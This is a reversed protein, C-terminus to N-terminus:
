RTGRTLESWRKLLRAAAGSDVASAARDVAEALPCPEVTWLAAAANALVIERVPGRAGALFSRLAAASEDPGAVKLEEARVRRLGFQEQNWEDARISGAEILRLHTSGDLTVEDLGDGGTAVVARRISSTQALVQAILGADGQRPVGILQYAPSAPNCLPGVLNFITRFPLQRRVPALGRLGPHFRPAFLFAIALKDLGQRLTSPEVEISVGLRELVESSGSRGSASRNGHKVVRVGCAAVVIAAATSVNVTHAGDGGTGCTDLCDDSAESPEFAIMRQRIARVAGLLEDATEGKEHMATLFSRAPGELVEGDLLSGIAEQCEATSLSVGGVVREIADSFAQPTM